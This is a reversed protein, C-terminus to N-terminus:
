PKASVGFNSGAVLGGIALSTIFGLVTVIGFELSLSAPQALMLAQLGFVTVGAVIFSFQNRKLGVVIMGIASAMIGAGIMLGFGPSAPLGPVTEFGALVMDPRAAAAPIVLTVLSVALLGIFTIRGKVLRAFSGILIAIAAGAVGWIWLDPMASPRSIPQVDYGMWIQQLLCAGAVATIWGGLIHLSAGPIMHDFFTKGFRHIAAGIMFVLSGVAAFSMDVTLIIYGLWALASLTGILALLATFFKGYSRKPKSPQLEYTQQATTPEIEFSQKVPAPRAPTMKPVIARQPAPKATGGQRFLRKLGREPANDNAYTIHRNGRGM